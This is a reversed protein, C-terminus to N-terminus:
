SSSEDTTCEDNRDDYSFGSTSSEQKPVANYNPGGPQQDEQGLRQIYDMYMQNFVKPDQGNKPQFNLNIKLGEMDQELQEQKKREEEEAKQQEEKKKKDIQLAKFQDFV